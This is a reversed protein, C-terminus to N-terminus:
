KMGKTIIQANRMILSVTADPNLMITDVTQSVFENSYALLPSALEFYQKTQHLAYSDSNIANYSASAYEMIMKRLTDKDCGGTLLAEEINNRLKKRQNNEQITLEPPKRLISTDQIVQNLLNTIQSLLDSDAIKILQRCSRNRCTWRQMTICRYDNRRFMASKCMPCIVPVKLQFIDASRDVGKQKNKEEKQLHIRRITDDELLRPYRADGKYREDLMIRILRSKNWGTIGPMYEIGKENLFESLDLLSYGSLYMSCIQKLAEAEKPHVTLKGDQYQYGFPISRKKM